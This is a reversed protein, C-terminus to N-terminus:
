VLGLSPHSAQFRPSVGPLSPVPSALTPEVYRHNELSLAVQHPCRAGPLPASAWHDASGLLSARSMQLKGEYANKDANQGANKEKEAHPQHGPFMNARGINQARKGIRTTRMWSRRGAELSGTPATAFGRRVPGQEVLQYCRATPPCGSLNQWFACGSLDTRGKHTKWESLVPEASRGCAAPSMGLGDAGATTSPSPCRALIMEGSGRM